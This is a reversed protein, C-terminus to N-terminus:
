RVGKKLKCNDGHWRNYGAGRTKLNCHPCIKEKNLNEIVALGGLRAWEKRLSSDNTHIGLGKQIQVNSGIKGAKSAYKSKEEKSLGFIGKKLEKLKKGGKSRVELFKPSKLSAQAGKKTFEEFQLLQKDTLKSFSKNGIEDLQKQIDKNM